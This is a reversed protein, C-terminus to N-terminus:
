GTTTLVRALPQVYRSQLFARRAHLFLTHALHSSHAAAEQMVEFVERKSAKRRFTQQARGGVDHGQWPGRGEM